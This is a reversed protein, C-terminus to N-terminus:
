RFEIQIWEPPLLDVCDRRVGSQMGFWQGRKCSPSVVIKDPNSNLWAAWWSYSSNAIINYGCSMMLQFDELENRRESFEVLGERWDHFWPKVMEINDSFVLINPDRGTIRQVNDYAERVYDETIPPFSDSHQLYDGLRVHVSVYDRYGEIVPLRFAERVEEDAGEFYKWSQWFGNMEVNAHHGTMFPFPHYNFWCEDLGCSHLYCFENNKHEQHRIGVDGEFAPLGPFFKDVQFANFGREVYGKRIGWNIGFRKAYGICAAIQFLNNGLRGIFKPYVTPKM